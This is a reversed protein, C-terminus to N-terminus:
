YDTSLTIEKWAELEATLSKIKNQARQYADSGLFLRKPPSPYQSVKILAEIAKNPDGQQHGHHQTLREHMNDRVDTYASIPKTTQELSGGLFDTRFVGPMVSIVHINKFQELEIQLGETLCDMAAKSSCYVSFSIGASFGGISGINFIRAGLPHNITDKAYERMHPLAARVVNVMGFFNIDFQKRIDKDSLEEVAGSLGYGANNVIVDISGFKAITSDISEKVSKENVLDVQLPLFRSELQGLTVSDNELEKKVNKILGQKDRTTAAVNYGRKLLIIVASLGLGKSSGTIYWNPNLLTQPNM